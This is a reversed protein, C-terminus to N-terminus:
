KKFHFSSGTFLHNQESKIYFIKIFIFFDAVTLIASIGMFDPKKQHEV